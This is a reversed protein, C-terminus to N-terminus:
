GEGFAPLPLPLSCDTGDRSASSHLPQVSATSAARDTHRLHRQIRRAPSPLLDTAGLAHAVPTIPRGVSGQWVVRHDDRWCSMRARAFDWLIPGLTRLWHMGLVVDYGDLLIVFLDIVFEEIDIFVHAARYVGTTPVRDSNAVKVSLDSRPLIVLHLRSAVVISISHTSGSDILAQLPEDAVRIDLQMTDTAALGTIANLSILPDEGTKAVEDLTDDMQLLYIGKMLYVKLHEHSFKETCNYCERREWKAAMESTLRKLRPTPLTTATASTPLALPKATTGLHGSSRPQPRPAPDNGMHLRQEYTRALAMVDELTAPAELEVDTKLPNCLGNTFIDIQHKEVLDTCCTVLAL